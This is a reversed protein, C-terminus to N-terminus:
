SQGSSEQVAFTTTFAIDQRMSHWVPCYRDRSLEIAREVAAPPVAGEVRFHMDVATFRALTDESRDATLAVSLGQVPHRGKKLLSVVDMAMCGALAGALAQMPSPGAQGNGDLVAQTNGSQATFRLQDDWSLTLRLPPRSADTM